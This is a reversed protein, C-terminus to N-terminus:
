CIGGVWIGCGGDCVSVCVWTTLLLSILVKPILKSFNEMELIHGFKNRCYCILTQGVLVTHFSVLREQCHSISLHEMTDLYRVLFCFQFMGEYSSDSDNDGDDDNGRPLHTSFLIM